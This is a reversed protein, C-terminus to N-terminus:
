LSYRIFKEVKVDGLVDRVKKKDDKIYEQEVLCVETFYRKIKGELIKDMIKEEKGEKKALQERYIEKEKDIEEASIDESSIYEPDTAAVQMAIDLALENRGKKDLALLVGIRGGLHSYAGVTASTIINFRKIGLKEGITGSLNDLTEKVTRGYYVPQGDGRTKAMEIIDLEMLKDMNEPKEKKITALVDEAFNQFQENRAVFDTESNIELIYGEDGQENIDVLIVGENMEREGRKAAKAIGKKRLNEIAKEIDGNTEELARKCDVIGAGTKSRLQKIKEM